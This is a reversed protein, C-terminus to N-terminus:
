RNCPRNLFVYVTEYEPIFGIIKKLLETKESHTYTANTKECEKNGNSCLYCALSFPLKKAINELKNYEM